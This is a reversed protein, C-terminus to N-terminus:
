GCTANNCASFESGCNTLCANYCGAQIFGGSCLPLCCQEFTDLTGRNDPCLGDRCGACAQAEQCSTYCALVQRCNKDGAGDGSGGDGVQPRTCVSDVCQLGESCDLNEQCPLGEGNATIVQLSNCGGLVGVLTLVLITRM